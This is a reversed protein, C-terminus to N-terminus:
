SPREGLTVETRIEEGERIYVLEVTEGVRRLLILDVLHDIGELREGGLEVLIDGLLFDEEGPRSRTGRLGAKEAPSGPVVEIVLVGRSVTTGFNSAVEEDLSLGTIGLWPRIVKGKAILDEAVERVTNIPIAFGIGQFGGTRSFIATNIGIVEGKLNLLPGGSNGPNIAADTQIIGRINFNNSARLTRNIASVVGVTVSNELRYPNGIAIATQGPKLLDSDGLLAPQLSRSSHVRIVALDTSPDTGVLEAELEEGSPLIVRLEEAGEVVHHNTLIIGDASLIVGSGVGEIPIPHTFDAGEQSRTSIHVVSHRATEVISPILADIDNTGNFVLGREVSPGPPSSSPFDELYLAVGGLTLLSALAGGLLAALFSTRLRDMITDQRGM